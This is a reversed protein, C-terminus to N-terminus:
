GIDTRYQMGEFHICKVGAYVIDIAEGLTRGRATVSLVRGGSTKLIGDVVTTGAHFVKVGPIKEAEEIGTIPIGKKYDPSPYGESAMVVCAAYGANWEVKVKDLKGEVCAFIIELLDTKLLRMYAQTEPDGFRANFEIVKPGDTTVMIGPYLLGAFIRGIKRLGLICPLVVKEKIEELLVHDVWSVPAIAGMGGTNPGTDGDFIRKHDKSPPFISINKGDCFAHISIEKGHLFEEIVVKKGANGFVKDNMIDSLASKAKRINEAIVVGKGLALGDAKIVLPFNQKSIYERAKKYDTFTQSTATPISEEQMLKKAFSKSWEVETAAKTPGFVPIGLAQIKDSLGDALYNDPGILILDVPNNKLWNMIEEVTVLGINEGLLATGANGPTIFIKKVRPSQSLKWSLAHERGGNGVILVKM